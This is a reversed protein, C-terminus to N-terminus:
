SITFTPKKLSNSHPCVFEVYKALIFLLMCVELISEMTSDMQMEFAKNQINLTNPM